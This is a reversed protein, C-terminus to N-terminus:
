EGRFLKIDQDNASSLRLSEAILKAPVDASFGEGKRWFEFDLEPDVCIESLVQCIESDMDDADENIKEIEAPETTEALKALSVQFKTRLELLRNKEAPSLLRVPIMFNGDSSEFEVDIVRELLRKRLKEKIQSIQQNKRTEEKKHREPAEKFKKREEIERQREEKTVM